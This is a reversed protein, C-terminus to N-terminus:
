RDVFLRRDPTWPRIEGPGMAWPHQEGREHMEGDEKATARRSSDRSIWGCTKCNATYGYGQPQVYCVHKEERQM